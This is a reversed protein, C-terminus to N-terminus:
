EEEDDFIDDFMMKLLAEAKRLREPDLKGLNRQLYHLDSGQKVTEPDNTIGLLYDTSTNLAIAIKTLIDGSPTRAGKVYYSMASETINTQQALQKQTMNRKRLMATLRDSFTSMFDGGKDAKNGM